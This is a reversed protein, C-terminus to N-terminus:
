VEARQLGTQACYRALVSKPVSEQCAQVSNLVARLGACDRIASLLFHEANQALVGFDDVHGNRVRFHVEDVPQDFDATGAVARNQHNNTHMVPEPSGQDTGEQHITGLQYLLDHFLPRLPLYDQGGRLIRTM